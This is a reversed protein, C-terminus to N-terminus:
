SHLNFGMKFLIKIMASSNKGKEPSQSAYGMRNTFPKM